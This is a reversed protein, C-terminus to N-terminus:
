LISQRKYQEIIHLLKVILKVSLETGCEGNWISQVTHMYCVIHNGDQKMNM